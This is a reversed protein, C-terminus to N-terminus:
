VRSTVAKIIQAVLAAVSILTESECKDQEPAHPLCSRILAERELRAELRIQQIEEESMGLEKASSNQSHRSAKARGQKNQKKGRAQESKRIREYRFIYEDKEAETLQLWDAPSHPWNRPRRRKRKRGEGAQLVDIDFAEVPVPVIAKMSPVRGSKVPKDWKGHRQYWM